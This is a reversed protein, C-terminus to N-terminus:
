RSMFGLVEDTLSKKGLRIEYAQSM